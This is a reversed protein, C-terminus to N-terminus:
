NKYSDPINSWVEDERPKGNSITSTLDKTEDAWIMLTPQDGRGGYFEFM